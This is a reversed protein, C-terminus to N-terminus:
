EPKLVLKNLSRSELRSAAVNSLLRRMANLEQTLTEVKLQLAENHSALDKVKDETEVHREKAKQRSKRVAINNRERRCRYDESERDVLKKRAAKGGGRARRPSQPSPVGIVSTTTVRIGHGAPVAAATVCSAFAQESVTTAGATPLTATSASPSTYNHEVEIPQLTLPCSSRLYGEHPEPKVKVYSWVDAESTALASSSSSTSISSSTAPPMYTDATPLASESCGIAVDFASDDRQGFINDLLDAEPTILFSSGNLLGNFDLATETYGLDTCEPESDESLLFPNKETKHWKESDFDYFNPSDM